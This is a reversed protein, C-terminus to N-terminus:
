PRTSRSGPAIFRRYFWYALFGSFIGVLAGVLIDLPFHVGVFIRSLAFLLPWLLFFMAWRIEKKLFLIMLIAVSFSFSAHGSFFSYDSPSKLIRILGNIEESNNPRLRAVWLKTLHTIGTVFVVMGLLVFFKQLAEKKPFKLFLLGLFLVYLPIWTIINTVIAWFGDYREVGLNNLYVFIDRDWELLKELM